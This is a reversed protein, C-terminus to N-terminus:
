EWSDCTFSGGMVEMMRLLDDDDFDDIAMLPTACGLQGLLEMGEGDACLRTVARVLADRFAQDGPLEGDGAVLAMDYFRATTGLLMMGGDAEATLVVVDAAGTAGAFVLEDVSDMEEVNPLDAVTKGYNDWLWLNLYDLERGERPVAWKVAALSEFSRKGMEALELGANSSGACIKVTQWPYQEELGSVNWAGGRIELNVSEPASTMLVPLGAAYRIYTEINVIAADVTGDSLAEGTTRPSAGLTVQVSSFSYGEEALLAKLKQGLPELAQLAEMQAGGAIGRLELAFTDLEVPGEGQDPPDQQGTQQDSQGEDPQDAPEKGGDCGALLALILVGALLATMWRRM